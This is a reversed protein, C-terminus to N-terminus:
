CTTRPRDEVAFPGAMVVMENGGISVDGIKIVSDDPHFDRGALKYPKSVRIVEGVGPMLELENQLEPYIQGIVGIVNQAEGAIMHAKLGVKTDIHSLVKEADNKTSNPGMVVIM